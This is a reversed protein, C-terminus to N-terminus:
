HRKFLLTQIFPPVEDGDMHDDFQRQLNKLLM